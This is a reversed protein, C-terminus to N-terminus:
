GRRGRRRGRRGVRRGGRGGFRGLRVDLRGRGLTRVDRRQDALEGGLMPHIEGRHGAGADAAPDAFLVHQFGRPHEAFLLRGGCRCGGDVPLLGLGGRRRGGGRRGPGDDRGRQATGGFP